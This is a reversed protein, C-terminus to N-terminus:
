SHTSIFMINPNPGNTIKGTNGNFKLTEEEGVIGGRNKLITTYITDPDVQTFRRALEKLENETGSVKFRNNWLGVVLNAIREIDGAEGIRNAFLQLPNEVTRNFQAGLVIPLGTEVAVDKLALCITKLEEQRSYTKYKGQPLTLLQFYDIFIAGPNAHKHLYRIAEILTDSDYNSYKINLRKTEILTKFFENKKEEFFLRTNITEKKLGGQYIDAVLREQNGDKFWENSGTKFYSMISRKNRVSLPTNLYVNLASSLIADADEEYSFFYAEKGENKLAQNLALNILFTTKGHSTPAAFISIAGAPLLLRESGIRYGSDISELRKAQRERIQAETTNTLLSSFEVNKDKLSITKLRANFLELAGKTDGRQQLETAEQLLAKFEREQAEKEKATALRSIGESLTDRTVGLGDGFNITFLDLFKDKDLPQLTEAVTLVEDLCDDRDKFTLEEREYYKQRIQELHYGYYPLAQKVAKTFAEVGQEKIFSDPDVKSGDLNNLIVTYVNNVGESLIVQIAQILGEKGGKDGDLCLTIKKAGRRIADKIQESTVKNSGLGVVNDIGRAECILADLYGEVVILDKDGKLSSINFFSEGRSLGTSNLYKTKAGDETARFVFGKLNGGSRFPISLRNTSGIGNTLNLGEKIEENNFGKSELHKHLSEQDPIYGLEMTKIDEQSYGRSTLYGKISESGQLSEIFYGNAEELLSQRKVFSKYAVPDLQNPPTLGVVDSLIKLAQPFEVNDRRMVYDILSLDEGGWEKIRGPRNKSVETKDKREKHPTGDLYTKSRWGSRYRNFNHEPFARDISEFLSPYLESNIWDTIISM